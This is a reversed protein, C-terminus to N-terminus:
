SYEGFLGAPGKCVQGPRELHSITFVTNVSGKRM